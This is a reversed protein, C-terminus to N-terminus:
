FWNIRKRVRDYVVSNSIMGKYQTPGTPVSGECQHQTSSEGGTGQSRERRTSQRTAVAGETHLQGQPGRGASM